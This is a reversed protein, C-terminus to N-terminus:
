GAEVLREALYREIESRLIRRAGRAVTIVTIERRRRMRWLTTREVGLAVCAEGITYTLRTDHGSTPAPM